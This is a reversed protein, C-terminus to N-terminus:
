AVMQWVRAISGVSGIARTQCITAITAATMMVAPDAANVM